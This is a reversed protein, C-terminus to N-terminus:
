DRMVVAVIAIADHNLALNMARPMPMPRPARPVRRMVAMAPPAVNLITSNTRRPATCTVIKKPCIKSQM